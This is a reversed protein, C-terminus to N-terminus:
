VLQQKQRQWMILQKSLQRYQRQQGCRRRFKDHDYRLLPRWSRHSTVERCSLHQLQGLFSSDTLGRGAREDSRNRRPTMEAMNWGDHTRYSFLPDWPLPRTGYMERQIRVARQKEEGFDDSYLQPESYRNAYDVQYSLM